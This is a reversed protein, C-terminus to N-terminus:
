FQLVSGRPEVGRRELESLVDGLRIIDRIGYCEAINILEDLIIAEKKLKATTWKTYDASKNDYKPM